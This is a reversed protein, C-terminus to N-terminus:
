LREVGHGSASYLLAPRGQGHFLRFFPHSQHGAQGVHIRHQRDRRRRPVKMNEAVAQTIFFFSKNLDMYKDYDARTHELFPTPKFVGAANVLYKVHRSENKIKDIVSEVQTEDYLDAAILDIAGSGDEVIRRPDIRAAESRAGGSHSGYRSSAFPRRNGQGHREIRRCDYGSNKPTNM